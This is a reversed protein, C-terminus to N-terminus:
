IILIKSINSIVIIKGEQTEKLKTLTSALEENTTQMEKKLLQNELEANSLRDNVIDLASKSNQIPEKSSAVQTPQPDPPPDTLPEM